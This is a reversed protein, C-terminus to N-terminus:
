QPAVRAPPLHQQTSLNVTVHVDTDTAIDVVEPRSPLENSKCTDTMSTIDDGDNREAASKGSKSHHKRLLSRDFRAQKPEDAFVGKKPKPRTRVSAELRNVLRELAAKLEQRRLHTAEHQISAKMYELESVIADIRSNHWKAAESLKPLQAFMAQAKTDSTPESRPHLVHYDTFGASIAIDLVEVLPVLLDFDASERIDFEKGTRLSQQICALWDRDGMTATNRGDEPLLVSLALRRRLHCARETRSPLSQVLCCRFRPTLDEDTGHLMSIAGRILREYAQESITALLNEICSSLALSLGLEKQVHADLNMMSMDLFAELTKSPEAEPVVSDSMPACFTVVKLVHKLGAPLGRQEPTKYKNEFLSRTKYMSSVSAITDSVSNHNACSVRIIEVYAECLAERQEHLLQQAMWSTIAMPLPFHVAMEAAFGSICAQERSADTAYLSSWPENPLCETPFPVDDFLPATDLFFHYVDAAQLAEVRQLAKLKREGNEDDSACELMADADLKNDLGLIAQREAEVDRKKSDELAQKMSAISAEAERMRQGERTLSALSHKYVKKPPSQPRTQLFKKQRERDSLGTGPPSEGTEPSLRRRKSFFSRPDALEEGSSEDSMDSDSNAVAPVGDKVIRRSSSTSVHLSSTPLSPSVGPPAATTTTASPLKLSAIHPHLIANPSQPSSSRAVVMGTALRRKPSLTSPTRSSSDRPSTLNSAGDDVANVNYRPPSKAPPSAVVIEDGVISSDPRRDKPIVFRSFFSTIKQSGPVDTTPSM